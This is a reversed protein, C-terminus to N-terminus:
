YKSWESLVFYILIAIFGGGVCSVFILPFIPGFISTSIVFGIVIGFAIIIRLLQNDRLKRKFDDIIKM